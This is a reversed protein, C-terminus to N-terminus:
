HSEFNSRFGYKAQLSEGAVLLTDVACKYRDNLVLSDVLRRANQIARYLDFARNSTYRSTDDRGSAAANLLMAASRIQKLVAYEYGEPLLQYIAGVAKSVESAIQATRTQSSMGEGCTAHSHFRSAQEGYISFEWISIWGEWTIRINQITKRVSVPYEPDNGPVGINSELRGDIYVHGMTFNRRGEVRLFLRDVYTPTSFNFETPRDPGFQGTMGSWVESAGADLAFVMLWGLLGFFKKSSM